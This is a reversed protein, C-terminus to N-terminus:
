LTSEGTKTTSTRGSPPRACAGAICRARELAQQARHVIHHGASFRGLLNKFKASEPPGLSAGLEKFLAESGDEDCGDNGQVITRGKHRLEGGHLESVIGRLAM